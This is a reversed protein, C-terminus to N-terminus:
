IGARVQFQHVFGEHHVEFQTQLGAYNCEHIEVLTKTFSKTTRADPMWRTLLVLLVDANKANKGLSSNVKTLIGDREKRESKYVSKLITPLQVEQDIMYGCTQTVLDDLSNIVLMAKKANSTEQKDKIGALAASDCLDSFAKSISAVLDRLKKQRDPM